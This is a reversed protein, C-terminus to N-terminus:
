KKKGKRIYRTAGFTVAGLAIVLMAVSTYVFMDSLKLWLWEAYDNGNISMPESSGIGFSVVLLVVTVFWTIRFIKNENVGNVIADSKSTKRVTKAVSFLALAIAGVLVLWMLGLVLNTFLPAIFDPNEEFPMDYGVLFFLGFVVVSLAVLIYFVRQSIKEASWNRMSSIKM